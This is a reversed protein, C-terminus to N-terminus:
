TRADDFSVMRTSAPTVERRAISFPRRSKRESALGASAPLFRFQGEAEGEGEGSAAVNRGYEGGGDGYGNRDLWGAAGDV